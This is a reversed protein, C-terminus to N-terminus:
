NDMTPYRPDSDLDAKIPPRGKEKVFNRIVDYIKEKTWLQYFEGNKIRKNIKERKWNQWDQLWSPLLTDKYDLTLRSM